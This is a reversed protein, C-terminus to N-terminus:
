IQNKKENAKNLGGSLRNKNRKVKDLHRQNRALRAQAESLRPYQKEKREQRQTQLRQKVKEQGKNQLPNKSLHAQIKQLREKRANAKNDQKKKYLPNIEMRRKKLSNPQKANKKELKEIKKSEKQKLNQLKKGAKGKQLVEKENKPKMEFRKSLREEKRNKLAHPSVKEKAQNKAVSVGARACQLPATRTALKASKIVGNKTKRGVRRVQNLKSNFDKAFNSMEFIRSLKHRQKWLIYYSFAKLVILFFYNTIGVSAFTATILGDLLLFLSAGTTLFAAMLLAGFLEKCLNFLVNEFPPFFILLSAFAGLFLLLLVMIQMAFAGLSFGILMLSYFLANLNAGIVTFFREGFPCDDSFANIHADNWKYKADNDGCYKALDGSSIKSSHHELLTQSYKQAQADNDFNLANFPQVLLLKKDADGDLNTTLSNGNKDTLHPLCKQVISTNLDAFGTSLDKVVTPAFGFFCVSALFAVAVKGLAQVIRGKHISFLLYFLIPVAILYLFNPNALATTYMDHASSCITDTWQGIMDQSVLKEHIMHEFDYLEQVTTFFAQLIGGMLSNLATSIDMKGGSYTYPTYASTPINKLTDALISVPSLIVIGLAFGIGGKCLTVKKM